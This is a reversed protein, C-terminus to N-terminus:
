INFFINHRAREDYTDLRSDSTIASKSSPNQFASHTDFVIVVDKMKVYTGDGFNIKLGSPSDDISVNASFFYNLGVFYLHNSIGTPKPIFDNYHTTNSTTLMTCASWLANKWASSSTSPNRADRTGESGGTIPQFQGSATAVGRFTNGGFMSRNELKRNIVVWAAANQDALNSSTNEGYLLRTLIELDSLSSYWNSSYAIPKGFNSDNLANNRCATIQMAIQQDALPFAEPDRLSHISSHVVYRNVIYKKESPDYYLLGNYYWGTEADYYFSHLRILNQTGIFDPNSQQDVWEGNPDKGLISILTEHEYVYKAVEQGNRDVIAIVNLDDDKIYTYPEDNLTFGTISNLEDYQYTFINSDRTEYVLRAQDDYVFVTTKDGVTKSSRNSNENYTYTINEGARSLTPVPLDINWQLVYDDEYTFSAQPPSFTGSNAWASGISFSSAVVAVLLSLLLSKTRSM